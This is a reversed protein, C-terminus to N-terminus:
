VTVVYGEVKQDFTRQMFFRKVQEEPSMALYTKNPDVHQMWEAIIVALSSNMMGDFAPLMEDAM